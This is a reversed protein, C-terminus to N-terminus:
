LGSYYDYGREYWYDDPLEDTFTMVGIRKIQKIGYKLPTALRLPAGRRQDLPEGLMEYALLTQPHLMTAMDVGVYYNRDPTVMGVYKRDLQDSYQEAFDSFRAGAWTTIQSWGEVCKHEITMEYKPLAKIDDLEHSGLNTGDQNAVALRWNDLDIEDEVGHRGNFRLISSESRPYTPALHDDRFLSSWIAENREHSARLVQPIRNDTPQGQIWRWGLFGAAMAAGGTLVSRRSRTRHEDITRTPLAELEAEYRAAREENPNSESM